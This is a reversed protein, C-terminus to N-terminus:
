ILLEEAPAAVQETMAGVHRSMAVPHLLRNGQSSRRVILGRRTTKEGTPFSRAPSPHTEDEPYPPESRCARIVAGRQGIPPILQVDGAKGVGDAAETRIARRLRKRWPRAASRDEDIATIRISHRADHALQAAHHRM